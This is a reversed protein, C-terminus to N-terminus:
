AVYDTVIAYVISRKERDAIIECGILSQFTCKEINDKKAEVICVKKDKYQIIYEFRGNGHVNVGQIDEEVSISIDACL